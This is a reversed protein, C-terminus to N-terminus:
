PMTTPDDKRSSILERLRKIEEIADEITDDFSWADERGLLRDLREIIDRETM